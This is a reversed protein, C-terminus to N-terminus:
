NAVNMALIEVQNLNKSFLLKSFSLLLEEKHPIVNISTLVLWFDNRIQKSQLHLKRLDDEQQSTVMFCPLHCLVVVEALLHYSKVVILTVLDDHLHEVLKRECRTHVSVIKCDV